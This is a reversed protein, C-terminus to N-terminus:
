SFGEGEKMGRKVRTRDALLSFLLHGSCLTKGFVIWVDSWPANWITGPIFVTYCGLLRLLVFM